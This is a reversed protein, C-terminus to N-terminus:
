RGCVPWQGPGSRRYLVAARYDQEAESADIPNGSGGVSQWTPISFQFKGYYGASNVARPNGGSECQAIAELVARGPPDIDGYRRAIRRQERKRKRLPAFKEKANRWKRKARLPRDVCAKIQRYRRRHKTKPGDARRWATKAVPWVDKAKYACPIRESKKSPATAAAPAITLAGVLVAVLLMTWRM